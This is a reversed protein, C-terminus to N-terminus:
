ISVRHPKTARHDWRHNIICYPKTAIGEIHKTDTYIENNTFHHLAATSGWQWFRRKVCPFGFSHRSRKNVIFWVFSAGIHWLVIHRVPPGAYGLMYTTPVTGGHSPIVECCHNKEYHRVHTTISSSTKKLKSTNQRGASTQRLSFHVASGLGDDDM